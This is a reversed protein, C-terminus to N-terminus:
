MAVANEIIELTKWSIVSETMYTKVMRVDSPM